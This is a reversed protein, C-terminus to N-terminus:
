LGKIVSLSGLISLQGADLLGVRASLSPSASGRAKFDGRGSPVTFTLPCSVPVKQVLTATTEFTRHKMISVASHTCPITNNSAKVIDGLNTFYDVLWSWPILEYITSPNVNLGGVIKEVLERKSEKPLTALYNPAYWRVHGRVEQFSNRVASVRYFYGSGSFLTVGTFTDTRSLRDLGVTRRLGRTELRQLERERQAVLDPFIAIKRCDSLIPLIGFQVMLHFKAVRKLRRFRNLPTHQYMKKLRSDFGERVMGPIERLEIGSVLAEISPRSPNTRALTSAAYTSNTQELGVFSGPDRYSAPLGVPYNSFFDGVLTSGPHSQGNIIVPQTEVLQRDFFRCDGILTDDETRETMNLVTAALPPNGNNPTRLGSVASERTRLRTM